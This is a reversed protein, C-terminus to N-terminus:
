ATVGTEALMFRGSAIKRGTAHIEFPVGRETREYELMLKEGPVAPSVFKAMAIGVVRTHISQEIQWLAQDLLVVGPIIPRAPFHGPFAPHDVPILLEETNM